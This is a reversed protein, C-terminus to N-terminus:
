RVSQREMLEGERPHETIDTVWLQNPGARSFGRDVLGAAIRLPRQGEPSHAAAGEPPGETRAAKPPSKSGAQYGRV